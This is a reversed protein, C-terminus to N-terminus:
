ATSLRWPAQEDAALRELVPLAEDWAELLAATTAPRGLKERDSLDLYRDHAGLAPVPRGGDRSARGLAWIGAHDIGSVQTSPVGRLPPNTM